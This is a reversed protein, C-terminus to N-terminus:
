LRTAAAPTPLTITFPAKATEEPAYKVPTEVNLM